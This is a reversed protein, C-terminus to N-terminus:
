CWLSCNLRSSEMKGEVHWPLSGGWGRKERKKQKRWIGRKLVFLILRFSSRPTVAVGGGRCIFVGRGGEGRGARGRNDTCLAFRPHHYHFRAGGLVPLRNVLNKKGMWVICQLADTWAARGRWECCIPHFAGRTKNHLAIGPMCGGEGTQQLEGVRQVLVRIRVGLCVCASFALHNNGTPVSGGCQTSGSRSSPATIRSSTTTTREMQPCRKPLVLCQLAEM